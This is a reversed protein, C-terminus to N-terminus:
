GGPTAASLGSAGRRSAAAPSPDSARVRSTSGCWATTRARSPSYASWDSCHTRRRLGSCPLVEIEIQSAAPRLRRAPQGAGSDAFDATDFIPDSEHTLNAGGQLTAQERGARARNTHVQRQRPRARHLQQIAGPISDGDLPDSNQDGAIVFLAGPELGGHGGDDDYIYGAAGPTIYDAWFRIEDFNRTGNRDEPGDFVPPTPHSVLFHVIKSGIESRCTGTARPRCASSRWSPPRTGTPRRRRPRTTPCCRARCTRGCSTSSRESTRATSRICRTSRWGSSARSPASASRTTATVSAGPTTRDLRQQEPRLRVPHRHEITRRVRAPLRDARRREAVDVPLQGPVGPWRTTARRLRVRQDAARRSPRAPHDRRSCQRPM